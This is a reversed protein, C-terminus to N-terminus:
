PNATAGIIEKAESIYEQPLIKIFRYEIGLLARPIVARWRRGLLVYSEVTRLENNPMKKPPLVGRPLVLVPPLSHKKSTIPAFPISPRLESSDLIKSMGYHNKDTSFSASTFLGFYVSGFDVPAHVRITPEQKSAGTMAAQLDQILTPSIDAVPMEMLVHNGLLPMLALTNHRGLLYLSLSIM